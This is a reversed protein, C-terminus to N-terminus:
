IGKGSKALEKKLKKFYTNYFKNVEIRGHQESSLLTKGDVVNNFNKEKSKIVEYVFEETDSVFDIIIKKTTSNLRYIRNTRQIRKAPNWPIDYEILYNVDPLDLGYGITDTAVLIGNKANKFEELIEEKKKYSTSGNVSFIKIDELYSLESIIIDQVSTWTTFILIREKSLDIQELLEKLMKLKPSKYKAPILSLFEMNKKEAFQILKSNSKLLASPDTSIIRSMTTAIQKIESEDLKQLNKNAKVYEILLKELKALMKNQTTDTEVIKVVEIKEPLEKIVEEKRRRIFLPSFIHNFMKHYKFGVTMYIKRNRFNKLENIVFTDYFYKKDLNGKVVIKMLNYFDLLKNEYPTGTLLVFDSNYNSIIEMSLNHLQSKENKLKSAEDCIFLFKGHTRGFKNDKYISLLTEYNTVLLKDETDELFEVFSLEKLQKKGKTITAPKLGNGFKKISNVFQGILSKNTLFVIYDYDMYAKAYMATAIAEITKGLGVDDAILSGGIYQLNMITKAVGYAQFDYLFTNVEKAKVKINQLEEEFESVENLYENAYILYYKDLSNKFINEIHKKLMIQWAKNIDEELFEFGEEYEKESNAFTKSKIL